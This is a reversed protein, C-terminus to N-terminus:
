GGENLLEKQKKSLNNPGKWPDKGEYLRHSVINMFELIEEPTCWGKVTDNGFDHWVDDKFAAIEANPCPESSSFYKIKEKMSLHSVSEMSQNSCYNMVGIQISITWGNEFTISFGKNENISIM